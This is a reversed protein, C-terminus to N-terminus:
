ASLEATLLSSNLLQQFQEDEKVSKKCSFTHISKVDLM